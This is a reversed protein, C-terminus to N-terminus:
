GYLLIQGGPDIQNLLDFDICNRTLVACGRKRAQLFILADNLAKLMRRVTGLWPM